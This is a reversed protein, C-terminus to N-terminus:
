QPLCAGTCNKPYTAHLTLMERCLTIGRGELVMAHKYRNLSPIGKHQVCIPLLSTRNIRFLKSAAPTVGSRELRRTQGAGVRM